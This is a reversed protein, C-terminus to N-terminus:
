VFKVSMAATTGLSVDGLSAAFMGPKGVAASLLPVNIEVVNASTGWAAANVRLASAVVNLTTDGATHADSILGSALLSVQSATVVSLSIDGVAALRANGTATVTADAAMSLSGNTASLDVTSSTVLDTGAGLSLGLGALGSLNVASLDANINVAGAAQLLVSGGATLAAGLSLDHSTRSGAQLVVAGTASSSTAVTLTTASAVGTTAVTNVSFNQLGGVIFSDVDRVFVGGGAATFGVHTAESEIVLSASGISTGAILEYRGGLLNGERRVDADDNKADVIAGSAKLRAFGDTGTKFIGLTLNGAAAEMLISGQNVVVQADIQMTVSSAAYVNVSQGLAKAELTPAYNDFLADEIVIEDASRLEMSGATSTIDSKILLDQGAATTKLLVNGSVLIPGTVTLGGLTSVLVLAGNAGSTTLVDIANSGTGHSGTVLLNDRETIFVGGSGQNAVAMSAVETLLHLSASGIGAAATLVVNGTSVILNESRAQGQANNLSGTLGDLIAGDQAQLLSNAQAEVRSLTLNRGAFMNVAGLGSAGTAVVAQGDTQFIDRKASIEVFGDTQVRAALLADRGSANIAIQGDTNSLLARVDVDQAASLALRGGNLTVASAVLVHSGEGGATLNVSGSGASTIGTGGGAASLVQLLGAQTSINVVGAGVQTLSAVNLQGGAELETLVVSGSVANVLSVTNVDLFRMEVGAASRVTLTDAVLAESSVGDGLMGAANSQLILGQASYLVVDDRTQWGAEIRNQLTINNVADLRIEGAVRLAYSTNGPADAVVISGAFVSLDDWILPTALSGIRVEGAGAVAHGASLHGVVIGSFGNVLARLDTSNLNLRTPESFAPDGLEVGQGLTTARLTLVGTGSVSQAGGAFDIEDAELTISGRAGSASKVTLGSEFIVREAGLVTLNGGVINVAEAFRVTGSAHITLDGHLIIEGMFSVDDPLNFVGPSVEIGQVNLGELPDQPYLTQGPEAFGIRGAIVINGPAKLTLSDGVAQGLGNAQGDGNIIHWSQGGLVMNGTGDSGAVATVAGTIILSDDILMSDSASVVAAQSWYTTFGSGKIKLNGSVSVSQNLTISGGVVPNSM